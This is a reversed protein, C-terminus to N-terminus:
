PLPRISSRAAFVWRSAVGYNFIALASVSLANALAASLHFLEVSAATLIVNGLISVVATSANFRILRGAVLPASRARVDRWTFLEHWVFNHLITLEVALATAIVYHAGTSLLASLIALQVTWGILGVGAFRGFRTM